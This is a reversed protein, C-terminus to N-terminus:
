IPVTTPRTWRVWESVLYRTITTATFFSALIGIGFTVAFGRVPGSGLWFLIFAALLGTMNTDTITNYARAFATEIASIASKGSRLEDRIRENILVNADVSMGMTLVIGAIGPLTLTSQLISMAATILVINVFLAIIAFLGFLGYGAIMFASVGAFGILVATKGAEISDAGLSPGVSREEIINLSAPLAGSRLLISLNSADQVSFNGSIQGSGGLIPERIVPASIVKDDLVIAFPKGVNEQTVRGFRQAGSANFRFSVVPENTRQDFTPQSDVLDEGSVISRKQLLYTPEGETRSAYLASGAPVNGSQAETASVSSDVLHFTLKATQGVLEKLEAPDNFGPVQLLIRDRGQRQITPETTGLADVRRRITEIASGVASSIRANMATETPRIIILNGEGREVTLDTGTDGLLANSTPRALTGLKTVARDIEEPNRIIVRVEERTKSLGSYGIREERLASRADGSIAELWDDRLEGANMQLLLHSGGQLDLGLPMRLQMWSPLNQLQAPTFLNPLSFLVGGISVVAILLVKWRDFYLM